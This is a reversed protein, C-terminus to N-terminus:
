LWQQSRQDRRTSRLLDSATRARLSNRSAASPGPPMREGCRSYGHTALRARVKQQRRDCGQFHRHRRGSRIHVSPTSAGEVWCQTISPRRRSACNHLVHMHRFNMNQRDIQRFATKLKAPRIATPRNQEIPGHRTRFELLDEPRLRGADDRHFGARRAMVPASHSNSTSVLNTQDRRDVDLREHLTLLIVGRISRRDGLGSQPRVHMAHRDLAGFMLRPGDGEAGM